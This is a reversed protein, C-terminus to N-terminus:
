PLKFWLPMTFIVVLLTVIVCVVLVTIIEKPMTNVFKFIGVKKLLEVLWFSIQGTTLTAGLGYVTAFRLSYIFERLLHKAIYTNGKALVLTEYICYIEILIVMAVFLIITTMVWREFTSPEGLMGGGFMGNMEKLVISHM